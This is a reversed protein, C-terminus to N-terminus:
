RLIIRYFISKEESSSHPDTPNAIGTALLFFVKMVAHPVFKIWTDQSGAVSSKSGLTFNILWTSTPTLSVLNLSAFTSGAPLSHAPVIPSFSPSGTEPLPEKYLNSKNSRLAFLMVPMASPIVM